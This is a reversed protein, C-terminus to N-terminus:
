IAVRSLIIFPINYNKTDDIDAKDDLMHRWKLDLSEELKTQSADCDIYTMSLISSSPVALNLEMRKDGVNICMDGWFVVNAASHRSDYLIASQLPVVFGYQFYIVPMVFIARQMLDDSCHDARCCGRSENRRQCCTYRYDNYQLMYISEGPHLYCAHRGIHEIERFLRGCQVCEKEDLYEDPILRRDSYPLSTFARRQFM